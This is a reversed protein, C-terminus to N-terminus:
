DPIFQPPIVKTLSGVKALERGNIRWSELDRELWNRVQDALVKPIAHEVARFAAWAGEEYGHRYRLEPDSQWDIM